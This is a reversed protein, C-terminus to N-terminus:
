ALEDLLAKAERLVPSCAPQDVIGAQLVSVIESRVGRASRRTDRPAIAATHHHSAM